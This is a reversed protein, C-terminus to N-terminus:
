LLADANCAARYFHVATFHLPWGVITPRGLLVVSKACWLLLCFTEVTLM